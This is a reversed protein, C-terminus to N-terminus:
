APRAAGRAAATRARSWSTTITSSPKPSGAAGPADLRTPARQSAGSRLRSHLYDATIQECSSGCSQTHSWHAWLYADGGAVGAVVGMFDAGPPPTLAPLLRWSGVTPDYVASTIQSTAPQGHTDSILVAVSGTWVATIMSEGGNVPAAPLAAWTNTSPNYSAGATGSWVLMLRGTWVANAPSGTSIPAPPMLRWKKTTPNYGASHDSTSSGSIRGGWVIMETGTWVAISTDDPTLPAAPLVSWRWRELDAARYVAASASSSPAAPPTPDTRGATTPIPTTSPTASRVISSAVRSATPTMTRTQGSARVDPSSTPSVADSLVSSVAASGSGESGSGAVTSGAVSDVPGTASAEGGGTRGPGPAACAPLVLLAAFWAAVFRRRPSSRGARGSKRGVERRPDDLM